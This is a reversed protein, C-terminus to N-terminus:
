KMQLHVIEIKHKAVARITIKFDDTEIIEGRQPISQHIHIVFGALTEYEESEPLNIKYHENIYDIELRASFIFETESLQKEILDESDHEDEIDGFLEEIVDEITVMGSTGGFEDVVVAVSKKQKTFIELIENAPMSEPIVQIPLIIESIKQPKKFLDFSHTYGIIHDISDRYILLKSYGTAFFVKKLEDISTNVELAEIETRPVMCERAKVKSFDLANQFIQVETELEEDEKVKSAAEKLYNDLDVMGFNLEGDTNEVKFLAKLILNSVSTSLWIVPYLIYYIVMVPISFFSLIANPNIRFLAKPMFEAVFLILLTSVVTQLIFVTIESHVLGKFIPELVMAMFIGYIVLAINNGVLMASIFKSPNKNFFSLVKANYMGLKNDLEIKLKNASIFAIELGSFMASFILSLFIVWFHLPEMM